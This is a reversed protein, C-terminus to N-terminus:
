ILRVNKRMALSHRFVGRTKHYTGPRVWVPKDLLTALIAVSVRDTVVAAATAVTEAENV